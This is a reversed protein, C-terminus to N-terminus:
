RAHLLSRIEAVPHRLTVTRTVDPGADPFQDLWYRSTLTVDGRVTYAGKREYTHQM